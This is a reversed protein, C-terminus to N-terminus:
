PKLLYQATSSVIKAALAPSTHVRAAGNNPPAASGGVSSPGGATAQNKMM